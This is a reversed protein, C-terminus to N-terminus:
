EQALEFEIVSALGHLPSSGVAAQRAKKDKANRVTRWAAAFAREEIVQELFGPPWSRWEEM